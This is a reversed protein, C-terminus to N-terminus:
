KWGRTGQVADGEMVDMQGMGETEALGVRETRSPSPVAGCGRVCYSPPLAWTLQGRWMAATDRGGVRLAGRLIGGERSRSRLRAGVRRICMRAHPHAPHPRPHPHSTRSACASAFGRPHLRPSTSPRLPLRPSCPACPTLANTSIVSSPRAHSTPHLRRARQRQRRGEGRWECRHVAGRPGGGRAQVGYGRRCRPPLRAASAACVMYM